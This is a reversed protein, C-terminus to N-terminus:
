PPIILCTKRSACLCPFFFGCESSSWVCKQGCSSLFCVMSVASSYIPFDRSGLLVFPFCFFADERKLFDPCEVLEVCHAAKFFYSKRAVKDADWEKVPEVPPRRTLAYVCLFPACAHLLHTLAHMKKKKKANICENNQRCPSIDHLPKRRAVIGEKLKGQLRCYLLLAKTGRGAEWGPEKQLFHGFQDARSLCLREWTSSLVLGPLLLDNSTPMCSAPAQPLHLSPPHSLSSSELSGNDQKKEEVREEKGLLVEESDSEGGEQVNCLLRPQLPALLVSQESARESSLLHCRGPFIVAALIEERNGLVWISGFM